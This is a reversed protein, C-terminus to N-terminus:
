LSLPPATYTADGFGLMPGFIFSLIWLGVGYGATKSFAKAIDIAVILSVVINVIPIFYLVLWWGPRGAIKCMLYINFFPIIIGWGPRGAKVFVKWWGALVLIVVALYIVVIIGVAASALM